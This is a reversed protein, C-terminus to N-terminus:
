FWKQMSEATLVADQRDNTYYADAEAQEVAEAHSLGADRYWSLPRSIRIEGDLVKATLGCQRVQATMQQQTM